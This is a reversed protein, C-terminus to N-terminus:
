EVQMNVIQVRRNEGANPADPLKLQEEGYGIAILKSIDLNYKDMLHRRVSEARRESLTQNYGNSGVADTHGAIMFTEGNLKEDTLAEGLEKLKPLSRANLKASNYDFYIEMDVAPLDKEKVYEAVENRQEVTIQRTSVKRLTDVLGQFKKQDKSPETTLSRTKVRSLSKILDSKDQAYALDSGVIGFAITAASSLVAFTRVIRSSTM